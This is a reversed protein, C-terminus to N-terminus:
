QDKLICVRVELEVPIGAKGKNIWETHKEFLLFVKENHPKTEGEIVRRRIQNIQRQAHYIYREIVRLKKRKPWNWNM